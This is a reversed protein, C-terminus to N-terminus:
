VGRDGALYFLNFGLLVVAVHNIPTEKRRPIPCRNNTINWKETQCIHRMQQATSYLTKATRPSVLV